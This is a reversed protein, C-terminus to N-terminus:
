PTVTAFKDSGSQDVTFVAWYTAGPTLSSNGSSFTYVFLGNAPANNGALTMVPTSGPMGSPGSNDYVYANFGGNSGNAFNATITFFTLDNSGVTFSSAVNHGVHDKGYTIYDPITSGTTANGLNSVAAHSTITGVLIATALLLGGPAYTQPHLRHTKM